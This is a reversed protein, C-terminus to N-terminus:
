DSISHYCSVYNYFPEVIFTKEFNSKMARDKVKNQINNWAVESFPIGDNIVSILLITQEPYNKGNKKDLCGIIKEVSLEWYYDYDRAEMGLKDAKNKISVSSSQKVVEALLERNKHNTIDIAQTIEVHYSPKFKRAGVLDGNLTIIADYSQNGDVYECEIYIGPRILYKLMVALPLEEEFLRKAGPFEDRRRCYYELASVKEIREYVDKIYDFANMM